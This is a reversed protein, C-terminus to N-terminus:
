SVEDGIEADQEIVHQVMKYVAVNGIETEGFSIIGKEKLLSRMEEKAQSVDKLALIGVNKIGGRM